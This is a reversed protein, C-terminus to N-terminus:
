YNPLFDLNGDQPLQQQKWGVHEKSHSPFPNIGLFGYLKALTGSFPTRSMSDRPKWVGMPPCSSEECERRGPRGPFKSQNRDNSLHTSVRFVAISSPGPDTSVLGFNAM